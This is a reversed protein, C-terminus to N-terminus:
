VNYFIISSISSSSSSNNNSNVVDYYQKYININISNTIKSNNDASQRM